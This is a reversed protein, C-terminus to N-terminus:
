KLAELARAVSNRLRGNEKALRMIENTKAECLGCKFDGCPIDSPVEYGLAGKLQWNETRLQENECRLCPDDAPCHSGSIEAVDGAFKCDLSSRHAQLREIKARLDATVAAVHMDMDVECYPHTLQYEQLRRIEAEYDTETAV